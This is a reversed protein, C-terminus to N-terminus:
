EIVEDALLQLANPVEIGLLRATQANIVFEFKSSQLVPLDAPSAGKLIRGTYVGVQRYMDLLDTGYSMLGGIEVVERTAYAAPIRYHTALTALQVRRANFFGDPGVFLADVRDQAITAFAAEIERSTSANLVQIQLGIARAAEPVDRLTSGTSAANTPNVLLAVRVAKPVPEHLLGLRKALVESTFFNIGTANRGPRALSAVLGHGVPDGSFGFAIPITTTAAKAALTSPDGVSAIVAVRRRVLDAMLATLRDYRGDLWHYEVVANQGEVYGSESLGKAFAAAHRASGDASRASVFGVVPMASQQARAALPWAAVSGVIVQIFERRKV